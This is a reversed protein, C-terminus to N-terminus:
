SISGSLRRAQMRKRPNPFITAWIKGLHFGSVLQIRWISSKWFAPYPKAFSVGFAAAHKAEDLMRAAHLLAKSPVCGRFTCGGTNPDADILAVQM